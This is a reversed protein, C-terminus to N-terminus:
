GHTTGSPDVFAGVIEGANNIGTAQTFPKFGIIPAPLEISTFIYNTASAACPSGLLVWILFAAQQASASMRNKRVMVAGEKLLM